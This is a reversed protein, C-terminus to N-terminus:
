CQSSDLSSFWGNKASNWQMRRDEGWSGRQLFFVVLPLSARRGFDMCIIIIFFLYYSLFTIINQKWTQLDFFLTLELCWTCIHIIIQNWFVNWKLAIGLSSCTHTYLLAATLGGKKRSSLFQQKSPVFHAQGRKVWIIWYLLLGVNITDAIVTGCISQM